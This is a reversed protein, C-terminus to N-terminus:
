RSRNIDALTHAQSGTGGSGASGARAVQDSHRRGCPRPCREPASRPLGPVRGGNIESSTHPAATQLV